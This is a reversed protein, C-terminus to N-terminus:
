NKKAPLYTLYQKWEADIVTSAEIRYEPHVKQLELVAQTTEALPAHYFFYEWVGPTSIRLVFVTWGLGHSEFAALLDREVGELAPTEDPDWVNDMVPPLNTYVAVWTLRPLEELPAKRAFRNDILVIAPVGAVATPYTKWAM